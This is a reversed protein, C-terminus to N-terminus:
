NPNTCVLISQGPIDLDEQLEPVEGNESQENGRFESGIVKRFHARAKSLSANFSIALVGWTSAPIMIETVSLGYYTVGKLRFYAFGNETKYPSLHHRSFYPHKPEKEGYPIYIDKSQCTLFGDLMTEFENKAAKASSGFIVTIGIVLCFHNLLRM